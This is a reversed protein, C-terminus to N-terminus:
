ARQPMAECTLMPYHANGGAFEPFQHFDARMEGIVPSALAASLDEPSDFMLKNRQMFDVRMGPLGGIWDVRTCIEIERVQPFKRMIPPHHDIYHRHWASLDAAQGPYHVLYSCRTKGNAPPIEIREIALERILMIQQQVRMGRLAQVDGATGIAQLVGAPRLAEELIEISPAYLQLALPPGPEDNPFAHHTGPPPPTHILGRSLGSVEGIVEAVQAVAEPTVAVAAGGPARFHAFFCFM